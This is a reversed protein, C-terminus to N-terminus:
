NSCFQLLDSDPPLVHHIVTKPRRPPTNHETNNIYSWAQRTQLIVGDARLIRQPSSMVLVPSRWGYMIDGMLSTFSISFECVCALVLEAFPKKNKMVMQCTVKTEPYLYILGVTRVTWPGFQLGSRQWPKTPNNVLGCEWGKASQVPEQQKM